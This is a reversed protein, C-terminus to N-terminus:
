TLRRDLDRFQRSIMAYVIDSKMQNDRYCSVLAPPLFKPQQNVIDICIQGSV